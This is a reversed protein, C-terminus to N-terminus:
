PTDGLIHTSLRRAARNVVRITLRRGSADSLLLGPGGPGERYPSDAAAISGPEGDIEFHDVNPIVREMLGFIEVVDGERVLALRGADQLRALEALQQAGLAGHLELATSLRREALLVPARSAAVICPMGEQAVVAFPAVSSLRQSDGSSLFDVAVVSQGLGVVRGEVRVAQGPMAQAPQGGQRLGDLPHLALRPAQKQSRTWAVLSLVIYLALIAFFGVVIAVFLVLFWGSASPWAFRLVLRIVLLAPSLYLARAFTKLTGGVTDRIRTGLNTDPALAAPGVSLGTSLATEM